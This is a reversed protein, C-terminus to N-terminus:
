CLLKEKRKKCTECLLKKKENIKKKKGSMNKM